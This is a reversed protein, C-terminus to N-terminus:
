DELGILYDASVKFYRCIAIIMDANPTRQGLEWKGLATQTIGLEKALDAQTLNKDIRLEKLRESIKNM